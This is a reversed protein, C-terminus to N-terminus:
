NTPTATETPDVDDADDVARQREIEATLAATGARECEEFFDVPNFDVLSAISCPEGNQAKIAFLLAQLARPDADNVAKEWSRLGWGTYDKIAIATKVSVAAPNYTYSKGEWEITLTLAM